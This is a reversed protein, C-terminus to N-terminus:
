QNLKIRLQNAIKKKREEINDQENQKQIEVERDYLDFFKDIDINLDEVTKLYMANIESLSVHTVKSQYLYKVYIAYIYKNRFKEQERQNGTIKARTKDSPRIKAKWDLYKYFAKKSYLGFVIIYKSVIPYLKYFEKFDEHQQFYSMRKDISLEKYEKDNLLKDRSCKLLECAKIHHEKNYKDIKLKDEETYSIDVLKYESSDM